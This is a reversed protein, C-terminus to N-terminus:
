IHILSLELWAGRLTAGTFYVNRFWAGSFDVQEFRAGSLDQKVFEAMRGAQWRTPVDTPKSYILDGRLIGTDPCTGM